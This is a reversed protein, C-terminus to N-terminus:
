SNKTKIGGPGALMQRRKRKDQVDQAFDKERTRHARLDYASVSWAGLSGVVSGFFGHLNGSCGELVYARTRTMDWGKKLNKYKDTVQKSRAGVCAAIEKSCHIRSCSGVM